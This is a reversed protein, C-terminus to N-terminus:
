PAKKSPPFAHIKLRRERPETTFAANGALDPIGKTIDRIVDFREETRARDQEIAGM